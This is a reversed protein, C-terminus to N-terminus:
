RRDSGAGGTGERRLKADNLARRAFLRWSEHKRLRETPTLRLTKEIQTVDVEGRHGLDNPPYPSAAM